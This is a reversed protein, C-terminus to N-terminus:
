SDTNKIYNTVTKRDLGCKRSIASNNVKEGEQQLEEIAKKIKEINKIKRMEIGVKKAKLMLEKKTDISVLSNTRQASLSQRRQVEQLYEFRTLNRIKPFEMAGENIDKQKTTIYILGKIYYKFVSKSIQQIEQDELPEEAQLNYKKAYSFIDEFSLNKKYKAWQMTSLFIVNNRNGKILIDKNVQRLTIERRFKQQPTKYPIAFDKFDNLEYNIKQSYYYEHKLPNRWVGYNRNSGFPDCKLKEIM